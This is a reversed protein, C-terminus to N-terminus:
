LRYFLVGAVQSVPTAGLAWAPMDDSLRCYANAGLTTDALCGHAARRAIRKCVQVLRADASATARTSFPRWPMAPQALGPVALPPSAMRNILCCALAELLKVPGQPAEQMLRQALSQAVHDLADYGIAPTPTPAPSPAHSM